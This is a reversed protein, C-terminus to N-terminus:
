SNGVKIFLDPTTRFVDIIGLVEEIRFDPPKVIYGCAGAAKAMEVDRSADSSTLVLVPLQALRADGRMAQLVDHGSSRPMNIDLIVLDPLHPAHQLFALAEEGDRVAFLTHPVSSSECLEKFLELDGENDEALLIYRHGPAFHDYREFPPLHNM